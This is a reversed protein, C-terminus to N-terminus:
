SKEHYRKKVRIGSGMEEVSISMKNDVSINEDYVKPTTSKKFEEPTLGFIKFTEM